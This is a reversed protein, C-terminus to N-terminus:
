FDLKIPDTHTLTDGNDRDYQDIEFKITHVDDLKTGEFQEVNFMFPSVSIEGPGLDMPMAAMPLVSYQNITAERLTVLVNKDTLNEVRMQMYVYGDIYSLEYLRLFTVRIADNEFLLHEIERKDPEPTVDPSPSFTQATTVQSPDSTIPGKITKETKPSFVIVALLLFVVAVVIWGIVKFVTGIVTKPNKM